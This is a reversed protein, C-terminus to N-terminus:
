KQPTGSVGCCLADKLKNIDLILQRVSHNLQLNETKLDDLNVQPHAFGHDANHRRWFRIPACCNFETQDATCEGSKDAVEKGSASSAVGCTAAIGARPQAMLASGEQLEIKM